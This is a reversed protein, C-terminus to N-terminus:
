LDVNNAQLIPLKKEM